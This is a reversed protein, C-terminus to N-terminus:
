ICTADKNYKFTVDKFLVNAFGTLSLFEKKELFGPFINEKFYESHVDKM